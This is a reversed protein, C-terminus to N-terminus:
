RPRPCSDGRLVLDRWTDCPVPKPPERHALGLGVGCLGLFILGFWFYKFTRM